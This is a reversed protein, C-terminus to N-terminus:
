SHDKNVPIATKRKGEKKKGEKREKRQKLIIETKSKQSIKRKPVM